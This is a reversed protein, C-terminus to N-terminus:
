REEDLLKKEFLGKLQDVTKSYTWEKIIQRSYMGQEKFNQLSLRMCNKFSEMNGSEFIYGNKGNLVLDTSCGCKDSVIVARGCVMAENIALGWTEGPGKSPLVFVDGLRYVVPMVSQNQFDIFIIAAYSDYKEKLESELEGNGVILLRAEINNLALFSKILLEPEKKKTLKAAFLFVVNSEAIGLQMRWSKAKQSYDDDNKSFRNNDIAHPAFLLQKSKLGHVLFYKKNASGVYLAYDVHSYVWKLFLRRVTKKISYGAPEDILTSDGRFLVPIKHHFYRIAKLHGSFAWGFVLLADAKWEKIEKNLTPNIIGTFHHSDPTASSNKVFTYDYGQLLPIDWKVALGFEKDFVMEKSQSWTYFVKITFISNEENLLKFLPANYQIPHTTIIALRRKPKM